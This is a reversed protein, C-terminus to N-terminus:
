RAVYQCVLTTRQKYVVRYGCVRCRVLDERKLTVDSGCDACLYRSSNIVTNINFFHTSL